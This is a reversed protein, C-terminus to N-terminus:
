KKKNKNEEIFENIVDWTAIRMSKKGKLWEHITHKHVRKNESIESVTTGTRAMFDKLKTKLETEVKGCKIKTKSM